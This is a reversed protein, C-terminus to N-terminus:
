KDDQIKVETAMIECLAGTSPMGTGTVHVRWGIMLDGFTFSRNGKRIPTGPPVHARVLRGQSDDKDQVRV